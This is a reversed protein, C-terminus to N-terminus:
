SKEFIALTHEHKEALGSTGGSYVSIKEFVTLRWIGFSLIRIAECQWVNSELQKKHLAAVYNPM